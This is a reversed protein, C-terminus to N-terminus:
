IFANMIITLIDNFNNDFEIKHHVDNKENLFWKNGGLVATSKKIGIISNNQENITHYLKINFTDKLKDGGRFTSTSYLTDNKNINVLHFDSLNYTKANLKGITLTTNDLSSNDIKFNINEFTNDKFSINPSKFDMNFKSGNSDVRGSLRTNAGVNIEPYFVGIIKNYIKLDFNLFENETEIIAEYNKYLSALSNQLLNKINKIKFNGSLKGQIIEPSNVKVVHLDNELFESSLQFDKFTFIENQNVYTTNKFQIKGYTNEINTGKFNAIVIGKFVSISDRNFLNLKRFDINNVTAKFNYDNENENLNVAGDFDLDFNPDRSVIKGDFVPYKLTGLVKIDKYNYGNYTLSLFDGGLYTNLDDVLFGYGDVDINFTAKGLKKNGTYEGLDLDVVNINGKYHAESKSLLNDLYIDAEANGIKSKLDGKFDISSPTADLTGIATIQGLKDLQEPLYVGLINPLLNSLDKKSTSLNYLEGTVKFDKIKTKSMSNELRLDGRIVSNNLGRVKLKTLNFDNLTGDFKTSINFYKNRGFEGYFLRIDTTSIKSNKIAAKINVKNYFDAMDGKKYSMVFDGKVNTEKDTILKTEDLTIKGSQYKFDTILNEVKIHNNYLFSFDNTHFVVETGNITFDKAFFDIYKIDVLPKSSLNENVYLFTGNAISTGDFDLVFPQKNKTKTKPIFYNLFTSFNNTQDGKYTKIKFRVDTLSTNKLSAKGQFLQIYNVLSSSIDKVLIKKADINGSFGIGIKEVSIETNYKKNIHSTVKKGAWTQVSPISFV